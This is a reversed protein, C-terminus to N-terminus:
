HFKTVNLCYYDKIYLRSNIFQLQLKKKLKETYIDTLKSVKEASQKQYM